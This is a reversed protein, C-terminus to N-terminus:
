KCKVHRCICFPRDNKEIACYGKANWKSIPDTPGLVNLKDGSAEVTVEYAVDGPHFNFAIVYYTKNGMKYVDNRMVKNIELPSCETCKITKVKKSRNQLYTVALDLGTTDSNELSTASSMGHCSCWKKDVNVEECTRQPSIEENLSTCRPCGEPARAVEISENSKTLINVLTAHLDYPTTFRFQNLKLNEYEDLYKYRYDYPVWMFLMPLREDYYSERLIRNPGFRFGHDSLFFVFTKNLAGSSKLNEFYAILYDEFLTPLADPNHSYSNTWFYGFFKDDKYTKVFQLSYDLLHEASPKNKTCILNGSAHEGTLFITRAYHDTPPKTFGKYPSFTDPLKIYDEGFATMYGAEKFKNWIILQHCYDMGRACERWKISANKGTLVAMINPFTNSAVKHYGRYDLWDNVKLYKVTKPISHYARGRSMTDMGVILVNWSDNEEYSIRDDFDNDPKFDSGVKKKLILYADSYSFIKKHKSSFLDCTVLIVEEELKIIDGNQFTKKNSYIVHFDEMGRKNSRTVYQYSCAFSESMNKVVKDYEIRFTVEDESTRDVFVVRQGCKAKRNSTEKFKMTKMYNPITCGPTHILYDEKDTVQPM